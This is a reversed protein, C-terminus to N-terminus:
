LITQKGQVNNGSQRGQSLRDTEEPYRLRPDFVLSDTKAADLRWNGSSPMKGAPNGNRRDFRTAVSFGCGSRKGRFKARFHNVGVALHAVHLVLSFASDAPPPQVVARFKRRGVVLM